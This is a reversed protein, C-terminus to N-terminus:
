NHSLGTADAAHTGRSLQQTVGQHNGDAGDGSDADRPGADIIAIDIPANRAAAQELLEIAQEHTEAVRNTMGWHTMQSQLIGRNIASSEVILARVGTLM